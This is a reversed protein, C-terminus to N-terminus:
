SNKAEEDDAENFMFGSLDLVADAIKVIEGPLLKARIFDRGLRFGAKSLFDANSFDPDTCQGEVILLNVTEINKATKSKEQTVKSLQRYEQWATESMAQITVDTNLRPLRVTGTVTSVDPLNLFADLRESLM